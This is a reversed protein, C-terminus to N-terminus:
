LAAQGCQSCFKAGTSLPSGCAACGSSLPTGCNLCFRASPDNATRCQGCAKLDKITSEAIPRAGDGSRGSSDCNQHGDRREHRDSEHGGGYHKGGGHNGRGHHGGLLDKFIKM